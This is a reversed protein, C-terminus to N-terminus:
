KNEIMWWHRVNSIRYCIENDTMIKKKNYLLTYKRDTTMESQEGNEISQQTWNATIGGNYTMGM